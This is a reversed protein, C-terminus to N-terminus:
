ITLDELENWNPGFAVDAILPVSLSAAAEMTTKLLVAVENLCTKDAELVLEDHVQLLMQAPLGSASLAKDVNIMAIKMIDAATGQLPMNTAVREAAMRRQVNGSSLDPVARRRGYLTEVYGVSAGREITRDFFAKVRPLRSWYQAIFAQSEARSLGTDRSLGFAQMGYLLGFNVTKAVRRMDPTVDGPDVGYVL